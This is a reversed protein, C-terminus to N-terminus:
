AAVFVGLVNGQLDALTVTSGTSVIPSVVTWIANTGVEIQSDAPLKFGHRFVSTGLPLTQPTVANVVVKVTVAGALFSCMDEYSLALTWNTGTKVYLGAVQTGAAKILVCIPADKPLLQFSPTWPVDVPMCQDDYCLQVPFYFERSQM